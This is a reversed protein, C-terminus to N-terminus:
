QEEEEQAEHLRMYEHYAQYQRPGKGELAAKASKQADRIERDPRESQFFRVDEYALTDFGRAWRRATEDGNVLEGVAVYVDGRLPIFMHLPSVGLVYSIALVDELSVNKARTGGLEIKALTVRHIKHGASELREALEEQSWGRRTRVEFLREAFVEGASLVRQGHENVYGLQPREGRRRKDSM